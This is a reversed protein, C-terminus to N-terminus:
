ELGGIAIACAACRDASIRRKSLLRAGRGAGALATAEAVSGTGRRTLVKPSQTATATKAVIAATVARLPLNLVEALALLGESGIKDQPACLAEVAHGDAAREFADRLSALTASRRFGFGAVIM